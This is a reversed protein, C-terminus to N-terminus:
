ITVQLLVWTLFAIPDFTVSHEVLLGKSKATMSSRVGPIDIDILQLTTEVLASYQWSSNCHCAGDAKNLLLFISACVSVLMEFSFHIM